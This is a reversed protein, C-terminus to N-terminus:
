MMKKIEDYVIHAIADKIAKYKAMEEFMKSYTEMSEMYSAQATKDFEKAFTSDLFIRPDDNEASKRVKTNKRLKDITASSIHHHKILTYTSEPSAKLTKWFPSYDIM